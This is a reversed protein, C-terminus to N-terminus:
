AAAEHAVVLLVDLLDGHDGVGVEGVDGLVQSRVEDGRLDAVERGSLDLLRPLPDGAVLVLNGAPQARRRLQDARLQGVAGTKSLM